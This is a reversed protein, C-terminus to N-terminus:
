QECVISHVHLTLSLLAPQGVKSFCQFMEQGATPMMGIEEEHSNGLLIHFDELDQETYSCRCCSWGAGNLM